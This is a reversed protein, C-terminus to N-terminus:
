IFRFLFLRVTLGEVTVLSSVAANQFQATEIEKLM